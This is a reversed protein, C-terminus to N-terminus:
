LTTEMSPRPKPHVNQFETHPTQNKEFKSRGKFSLTIGNFELTFLWIIMVFVVKKNHYSKFM